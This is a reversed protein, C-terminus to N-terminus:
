ATEPSNSPNYTAIEGVSFIAATARTADTAVFLTFFSSREAEERCSPLRASEGSIEVTPHGDDPRDGKSAIRRRPV